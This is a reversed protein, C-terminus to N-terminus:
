SATCLTSHWLGGVLEPVVGGLLIVGEALTANNLGGDLSCGPLLGQGGCAGGDCRSGLGRGRIGEM